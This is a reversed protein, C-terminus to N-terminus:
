YITKKGNEMTFMVINVDVATFKAEISCTRLVRTWKKALKHDSFKENRLEKPTKGCALAYLQAFFKSMLKDHNSM